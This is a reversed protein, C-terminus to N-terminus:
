QAYSSFQTWTGASEFGLSLYISAGLDSADLAARTAGLDRAAHLAAATMARGIGRRRWDPDTNVFFVTAEAGAVRTGATARV